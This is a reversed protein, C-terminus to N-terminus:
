DGAQYNSLISNPNNLYIRWRNPNNEPDVPEPLKATNNRWGWAVQENNEQIVQPDMKSKTYKRLYRGQGFTQNFLALPTPYGTEIDMIVEGQSVSVVTGQTVTYSSRTMHMDRFELRYVDRGRIMDQELDTFVLTTLEMGAGQFILRGNPGPNLGDTFDIGHNNNGGIEYIGSPLYVIISDDPNNAFYNRAESIVAALGEQSVQAPSLNWVVEMARVNIVSLAVIFLLTWKLM